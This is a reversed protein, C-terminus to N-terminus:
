RKVGDAWWEDWYFVEVPIAMAMGLRNLDPIKEMQLRNIGPQFGVRFVCTLPMRVPDTMIVNGSRSYEAGPMVVVWEAESEYGRQWVLPFVWLGQGLLCASDLMFVIPGPGSMAPNETLSIGPRGRLEGSELIKFAKDMTTFHFLTRPPENRLRAELREQTFYERPYPV